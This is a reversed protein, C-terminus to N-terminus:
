LLWEPKLAAQFWDLPNEGGRRSVFPHRALGTPVSKTRSYM